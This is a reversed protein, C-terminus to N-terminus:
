LEKLLKKLVEKAEKIEASPTRLRMIKYLRGAKELLNGQYEPFENSLWEAIVRVIENDKMM